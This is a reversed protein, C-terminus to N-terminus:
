ARHGRGPAFLDANSWQWSFPPPTRRVLLPYFPSPVPAPTFDPPRTPPLELGAGQAGKVFGLLRGEEDWLYSGDFWGMVEGVPSVLVDEQVWGLARNERDYLVGAGTLYWQAEGQHDFLFRRM